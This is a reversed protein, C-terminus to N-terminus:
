VYNSKEYNDNIIVPAGYQQSHQTEKQSDLQIFVMKKNILNRIATSVTSWPTNLSSSLFSKTCDSNRRLTFLLKNEVGTIKNDNSM